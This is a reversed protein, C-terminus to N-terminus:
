GPEVYVDTPTVLVMVMVGFWGGDNYGLKSRPCNASLGVRPWDLRLSTLEGVLIKYIV